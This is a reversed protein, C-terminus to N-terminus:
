KCTIHFLITTLNYNCLPPFVRLSIAFGEQYFLAVSLITMYFTKGPVQNSAEVVSRASLSSMKEVNDVLVRVTIITLAPLSLGLLRKDM